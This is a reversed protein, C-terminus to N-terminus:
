DQRVWSLLCGATQRGVRHWVRNARARPRVRVTEESGVAGWPRTGPGTGMRVSKDVGPEPWRCRPAKWPQAGRESGGQPPM